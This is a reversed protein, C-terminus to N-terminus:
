AGGGPTGGIRWVRNMDEEEREAESQARARYAQKIAEEDGQFLRSPTISLGRVKIPEPGVRASWGREEKPVRYCGSSKCLGWCCVLGYTSALVGLLGPPLMGVFETRVGRVCSCLETVDDLQAKAFNFNAQATLLAATARRSLANANLASTAAGLAGEANAAATTMGPLTSTCTSTVGNWVIVFAYENSLIHASLMAASFLLTLVGFCIAIGLFSKSCFFSHHSCRAGIAAFTLAM